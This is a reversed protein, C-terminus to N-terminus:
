HMEIIKEYSGHDKCRKEDKKQGGSELMKRRVESREDENLNIERKM